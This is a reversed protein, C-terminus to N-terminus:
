DIIQLTSQTPALLTMLTFTLEIHDNKCRLHIIIMNTIVRIFFDYNYQFWIIM